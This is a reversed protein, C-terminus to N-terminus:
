AQRGAIALLRTQADQEADVTIPPAFVAERVALLGGINIQTDVTHRVLESM